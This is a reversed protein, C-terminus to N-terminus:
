VFPRVVICELNGASAAAEMADPLAVLPYV